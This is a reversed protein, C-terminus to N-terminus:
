RRSSRKRKVEGRAEFYAMLRGLTEVMLGLYSTTHELKESVLKVFRDIAQLRERLDDAMRYADRLILAVYYLVWSLFITLWLICFAFVINLLDQSSYLM